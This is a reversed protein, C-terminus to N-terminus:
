FLHQEGHTACLSARRRMGAHFAMLLAAADCRFTELGPARRRARRRERGAIRPLGGIDQGISDLRAAEATAPAADHSGRIVNDRRASASTADIVSLGHVLTQL